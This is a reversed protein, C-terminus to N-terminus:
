ANSWRREAEEISISIKHIQKRNEPSLEYDDMLIVSDPATEIIHAKNGWKRKYKFMNVGFLEDKPDVIKFTAKGTHHVLSKHNKGIKLKLDQARHWYDLDEFLGKGFQEDLMGLQDLADRKIAWISGFKGNDVITDETVWGDSDTTLISAVDYGKHITEVLTELWTPDVFEIDNNSVVIIGGIAERLGTNVASAYGGNEPREIVKFWTGEIHLPSGDDVVIVEDIGPTKYLGELCEYTKNILDQNAFYCPVIVSIKYSM